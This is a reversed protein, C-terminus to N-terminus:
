CFLLQKFKICSFIDIFLLVKRDFAKLFNFQPVLTNCEFLLYVVPILSLDILNLHPFIVVNGLVQMGGLLTLVLHVM